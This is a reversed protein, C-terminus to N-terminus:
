AQQSLCGMTGRESASIQLSSAGSSTDVKAMCYARAHPNDAFGSGGALYRARAPEPGFRARRSNSRTVPEVHVKRVVTGRRGLGSMPRHRVINELMIKTNIKSGCSWLCTSVPVSALSSMRIPMVTIKKHPRGRGASDCLLAVLTAAICACREETSRSALERQAPSIQQAPASRAPTIATIVSLTSLFLRRVTSCLWCASPGTPLDLGTSMSATGRFSM